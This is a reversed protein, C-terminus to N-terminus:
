SILNADRLTATSLDAATLNTNRLLAGTLNAGRLNAGSLDSGILRARRMDAGAARFVRAASLDAGSLDARDLDLYHLSLGSLDAGRLDPVVRRAHERWENWESEHVPVNASRELLELHARDGRFRRQRPFPHAAVLRQQTDRFFDLERAVRRAWLTLENRGRARRERRASLVRRLVAREWFALQYKGGLTRLSGPARALRELLAYGAEDSWRQLGRSTRAQRRM